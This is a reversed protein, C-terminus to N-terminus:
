KSQQEADLRLIHLKDPIQGGSELTGAPVVQLSVSLPAGQSYRAAVRNIGERLRGVPVLVKGISESGFIDRDHLEVAIVESPEAKIRAVKDLDGPRFEKRLFDTLELSSRDWSAVLANRSTASRLVMNGRWTIEASLDPPSGDEDWSSGDARAPPVEAGVCWVAYVRDPEWGKGGLNSLLWAALYGIILLFFVALCVAMM